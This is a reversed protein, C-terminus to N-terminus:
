RPHSNSVFNAPPALSAPSLALYVEDIIIAANPLEAALKLVDAPRLADGTPNNPHGLIVLRTRDDAACVIARPDLQWRREYPVARLKAGAVAAVHAYMGFTPRVTLMTDGPDLFVRALAGLIEDAGSGLSLDSSATGIRLALAASFDRLLEAPYCRLREGDIARVAAVVHEPAPLPCENRHMRLRVGADSLYAEDYDCANLVAERIRPQTM